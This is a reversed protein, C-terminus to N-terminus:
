AVDLKPQFESDLVEPVGMGTYLLVIPLIAVLVSLLCGTVIYRLTAQPIVGAIAKCSVLVSYLNLPIIWEWPVDLYTLLCDLSDGVLWSAVLLNFLPGQGDWRSGRRLWWKFFSIMLAFSCWSVVVLLYRFWLIEDATGAEQLGCLGLVLLSQWRPFNFLTLKQPTLLFLFIAPKIISKSYFYEGIWKITRV